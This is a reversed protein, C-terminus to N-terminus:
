RRTGLTRTWVEKMVPNCQLKKYSRITKGTDPRVVLVCCHETDADYNSIVHSWSTDATLFVDPTWINMNTGYYASETVLNIAEQSIMNPHYLPIRNSNPTTAEEVVM